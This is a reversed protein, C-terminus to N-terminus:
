RDAGLGDEFRRLEDLGLLANLDDMTMMQNVWASTSGDRRLSQFMQDIVGV